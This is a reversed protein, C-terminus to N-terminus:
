ANDFPTSCHKTICHLAKTIRQARPFIKERSTALFYQPLAKNNQMKNHKGIKNNRTFSCKLQTHLSHIQENQGLKSLSKCLWLM